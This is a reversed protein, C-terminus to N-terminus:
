RALEDISFDWYEDESPKLRLHKHSYRNGRNNGTQQTRFTM